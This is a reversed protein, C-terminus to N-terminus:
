LARRFGRSMLDPADQRRPRLCYLTWVGAIVLNAAIWCLLCFLVTQMLGGDEGTRCEPNCVLMRTFLALILDSCRSIYTLAATMQHQRHSRRRGYSMQSEPIRRANTAVPQSM